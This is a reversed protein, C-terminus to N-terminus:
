NVILTKLSFKKFFITNNNDGGRKIHFHFLDPNLDRNLMEM